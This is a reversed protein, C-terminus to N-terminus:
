SGVGRSLPSESGFSPAPERRAGGRARDRSKLAPPEGWVGKRGGWAGWVGGGWVSAAEPQAPAVVGAGRPGAAVCVGRPGLAGHVLGAAGMESGAGGKKKKEERGPAVALLVAGPCERYLLAVARLLVIRTLWFTGPSVPPVAGGGAAGEVAGAAARGPAEPGGGGGPAARRQRLAASPAAMDRGASLM